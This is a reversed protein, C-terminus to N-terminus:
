LIYGICYTETTRYILPLKLSSTTLHDVAAHISSLSLRYASCNSADKLPESGDDLVKYLVKIVCREDLMVEVSSEVSSQTLMLLNKDMIKILLSVKKEQESAFFHIEEYLNGKKVFEKLALKFDILPSKKQGASAGLDESSAFQLSHSWIRFSGDNNVAGLVSLCRNCTVENYDTVLESKLIKTNLVYYHSGYFCDNPRPCLINKYDVVSHSCCFWESPECEESPLSLVREFLVENKTISNKCGTCTLEFSKQAPPLDIGTTLVETKKNNKLDSSDYLTSQSLQIRFIIWQDLFQLSTVSSNVEIPLLNLKLEKEDIKATMSDGEHCINISSIQRNPKLQVYVYGSRLQPRLEITLSEM